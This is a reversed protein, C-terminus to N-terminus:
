VTAHILKLPLGKYVTTVRHKQYLQLLHKTRRDIDKRRSASFAKPQPYKLRAVLSAADRETMASASLRLRRCAESLTSMHWGYYGVRLYLSPLRHKPVVDTLLTALAAERLKRALTKEYRGTLVRVLQMEITSAGERKGRVCRRWIARCAALFDIGAHKFFRHDEGSVLLGQLLLCPRPEQERETHENLLALRERLLLWDQRLLVRAFIAIIRGLTRM